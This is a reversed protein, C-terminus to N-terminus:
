KESFFNDQKYKEYDPMYSKGFVTNYLVASEEDICGIYFCYEAETGCYLINGEIRNRISDTIYLSGGNSEVFYNNVISFDTFKPSTIRIGYYGWFYNDAIVINSAVGGGTTDTVIGGPRYSLDDYGTVGYNKTGMYNYRIDVNHIGTEDPDLLISTTAADLMNNRIILGEVAKVYVQGAAPFLFVNRLVSIQQPCSGSDQTDILVSGPLDGGFYSDALINKASAKGPLKTFRVIFGNTTGPGFSCSGIYNESGTVEVAAEKNKSNTQSFACETIVSKESALSLVSGNASSNKLVLYSININPSDIVFLDGDTKTGGQLISERSRDSDGTLLITETCDTKLHVSENFKYTGKPFFITGGGSQAVFCLADKLAQTNDTRGNGVAGFDLINYVTSDGTLIPATQYVMKDDEQIITPLPKSESPRTECGAAGSLLVLCLTCVTCIIKKM